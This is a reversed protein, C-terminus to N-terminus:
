DGEKLEQWSSITYLLDENLFVALKRYNEGKFLGKSEIFLPSPLFLNIETEGELIIRRGKNQFFDKESGQDEERMYSSIGEQLLFEDLAENLDEWGEEEKLIMLYRILEVGAEAGYLSRRSHALNHALQVNILAGLLLTAGLSTLLTLLLLTLILAFGKEREKQCLIPDDEFIGKKYLIRSRKFSLLTEQLLLLYSYDKCCGLYEKGLLSYNKEKRNRLLM